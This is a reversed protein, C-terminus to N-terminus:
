LALGPFPHATTKPAPRLTKGEVWFPPVLIQRPSTPLGRANRALEGAVWELAAEGAGEYDQRVGSIHTQDEDALNIHALGLEDPVRIRLEALFRPVMTSQVLICEPHQDRLWCELESREFTVQELVPANELKIGAERCRAYFAGVFNNEATTERRHCVVLGPRRYGRALIHDMAIRVVAAHHNDVANVPSTPLASGVKVVALEEWPLVLPKKPSESFALICGPIGRAMLIQGLRPGSMELDDYAFHDLRFGASEAARTAGDWIRRLYPHEALARKPLDSIFALTIQQRHLRGRHVQTMLASVLPNPRYGLEEAKSLVRRRTTESISPHNRLALSVTMRSCGLASAITQLSPARKM